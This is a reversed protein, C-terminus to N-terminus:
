RPKPLWANRVEVLPNRWRPRTAMRIRVGSRGMEPGIGDGRSRFVRSRASPSGSTSKDVAVFLVAVRDYM